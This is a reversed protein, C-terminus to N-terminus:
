RRYFANYGKCLPLCQDFDPQQFPRVIFDLSM